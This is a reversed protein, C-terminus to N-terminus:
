AISFQCELRIRKNIQQEMCVKELQNEILSGAKVKGTFIGFTTLKM